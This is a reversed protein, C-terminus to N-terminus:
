SVRGLLVSASHVDFPFRDGRCLPSSDAKIACVDRVCMRVCMYVRCILMILVASLATPHTPVLYLPSSTPDLLGSFTHSSIM